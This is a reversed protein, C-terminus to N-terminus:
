AAKLATDEKPTEKVKQPSKAQSELIAVAEARLKFFDFGHLKAIRGPPYGVKSDQPPNLTGDEDRDCTDTFFVTIIDDIEMEEVDLKGGGVLPLMEVIREISGWTRRNSPRLTEGPMLNKSILDTLIEKLLEWLDDTKMWPVQKILVREGSRYDVAITREPKKPTTDSM